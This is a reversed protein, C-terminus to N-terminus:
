SWVITRWAKYTSMTGVKSYGRVHLFSTLSIVSPTNRPNVKNVIWDLYSKLPIPLSGPVLM